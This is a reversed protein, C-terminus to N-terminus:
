LCTTLDSSGSCSSECLNPNRRNSRYTEAATIGADVGSFDSTESDRHWTRPAALQEDM